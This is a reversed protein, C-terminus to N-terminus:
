QSGLDSHFVLGDEPQQTDYANKLAKSILDTTMFRSFSYGVMKKTHLDMVSALYCWGDKLTNIYTIDGRNSETKNLTDYYTSRPIDLVNCLM